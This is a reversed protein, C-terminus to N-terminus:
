WARMAGITPTWVKFMNKVSDLVRTQLPFLLKKESVGWGM